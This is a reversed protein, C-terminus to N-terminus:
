ISEDDCDDCEKRVFICDDDSDSCVFCEPYQLMGQRCVVFFLENPQVIACCLPVTLRMKSQTDFHHVLAEKGGAYNVCLKFFMYLAYAEYCDRAIAFYIKSCTLHNM